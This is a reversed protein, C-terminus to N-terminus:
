FLDKELLESLELQAKSRNDDYIMLTNLNKHRSLKQVKRIDGQSKNLATTISSHRIRHPSMQKIIGAKKCYHRVIKYIGDGTLRKGGSRADLAIFLPSNNNTGQNERNKLWDFVAQNTKKSLEIIQKENHGKGTIWLERSSPKFDGINLLSIENRRLANAWLLLLLAFDRKGKLCSIKCFTLVKKFELLSIGSTDRYIKIKESSVTDKLSFSCLGLRNAASIFSKVTSIKRNITTPALKLERLYGKYAMLAAHAQAPTVKLFNNVLEESIESGSMVRFFYHLDKKYERRTIASSKDALWLSIAQYISYSDINFHTLKTVIFKLFIFALTTINFFSKKLIM